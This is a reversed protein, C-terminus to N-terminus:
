AATITGRGPILGPAHCAGPQPNFVDLLPPEGSVSLNILERQEPETMEGGVSADYHVYPCGGGSPTQLLDSEFDGCRRSTRPLRAV